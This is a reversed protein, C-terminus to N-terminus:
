EVIIKGREIINGQENVLVFLYIGKNKGFDLWTHESNLQKSLILQGLVSYIEIKSNNMHEPITVNFLGNNPNPFININAKDSYEITGVHPMDCIFDQQNYFSQISQSRERLLAISTLNTGEYDRAFPFALDVCIMEGANMTFPGVSMVGRRDGPENGLAYENWDNFNEEPIGTFMFNTSITGNYGIGGYTMPSGDNWKGILYNYYGNAGQPEGIFTSGNTFYLFRSIPHNLFMAGQAPAPSGYQGNTGTGDSLGSNYTYFMNLISDCGIYDDMSYGLDMDCFSGFYVNHFNNVSRNFIEYNVFVTQNLASDNPNNYSYALGHVEIKFKEGGSNHTLNDDNFMFFIAQDGRIKPYDGSEPEYIGNYNLDVFPALYQAEGNSTNGNAPWQLISSPTEYNGNAYNAMHYDITAKDVKWVRNYKYLFSTDTYNNAVPGFSFDVGASTYTQAALHLQENADFGGIWINSEYITSIGSGKPVEFKNNFISGNASIKASINNIDLNQFFESTYILVDDIQIDDKSGNTQRLSFVLEAANSSTSATFVAEKKVWGITDIDAVLAPLNANTGTYLSVSIINGAGRVWYSIIYTKGAEITFASTSIKKPVSKSNILRCAKLGSHVNTTYAQISDAVINTQTGMWQNPSSGNWSEFGSIFVTQSKVFPSFAFLFLCVFIKTKM